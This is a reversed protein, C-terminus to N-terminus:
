NAKARTFRHWWRVKPEAPPFLRDLSSMMEEETAARSEEPLLNAGCQLGLSIAYRTRNEECGALSLGAHNVLFQGMATEWAEGSLPAFVRGALELPTEPLFQQIGPLAVSIVIKTM